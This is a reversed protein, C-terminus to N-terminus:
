DDDDDLRGGESQEARGIEYCQIALDEIAESFETNKCVLKWRYRFDWLLERVNM